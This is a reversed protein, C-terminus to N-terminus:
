SHRWVLDPKHSKNREVCILIKYKELIKHMENSHQDLDMEGSELKVTHADMRAKIDAYKTEVFKKGAM